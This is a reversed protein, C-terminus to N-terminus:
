SGVAQRYKEGFSNKLAEREEAPPFLPLTAEPLAIGDASPSLTVTLSRGALLNERDVELRGLVFKCIKGEEYENLTGGFIVTKDETAFRLGVDKKEKGWSFRIKGKAATKDCLLIGNEDRVDWSWERVFARDGNETVAASLAISLTEKEGNKVSFNLTKKEDNKVTKGLFLEGRATCDGSKLSFSIGVVRGDYISFRMEGSSSESLFVRGVEHFTDSEGNLFSRIAAEKEASLAKGDLASMAAYVACVADQLETKKGETTFLTWIRKFEEPGFRYVVDKVSLTEEGVTLSASEKTCDADAVDWLEGAVRGITEASSVFAPETMSLYVALLAEIEAPLVDAEYYPSQFFAAAAGRRDGGRSGDSLESSSFVLKDGVASLDARYGNGGFVLRASEPLNAMYSLSGDKREATVSGSVLGDRLFLLDAEDETLIERTEEWALLLEREPDLDLVLGIVTSVLLVVALLPFIGGKTPNERKVKEM